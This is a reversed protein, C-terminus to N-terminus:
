KFYILYLGHKRCFKNKLTVTGVVVCNLYWITFYKYCEVYKLTLCIDAYSTTQINNQNFHTSDQTIRVIDQNLSRWFVTAAARLKPKEVEQHAMHLNALMREQLQPIIIRSVKFILRNSYTLDNRYSRYLKM